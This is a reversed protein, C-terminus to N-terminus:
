SCIVSCGCNGILCYERQAGPVGRRGACGDDSILAPLLCVSLPLREPIKLFSECPSEARAADKQPIPFVLAPKMVNDAARSLHTTGQFIVSRTRLKWSQWLFSNARLPVGTICCPVRSSRGTPWCSLAPADSGAPLALLCSCTTHREGSVGKEQPFPSQPQQQLHRDAGDCVTHGTDRLLRGDGADRIRISSIGAATGAQRPRPADLGSAAISGNVTVRSHM